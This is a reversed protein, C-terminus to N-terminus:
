RSKCRHRWLQQSGLSPRLLHQPSSSGPDLFWCGVFRCHGLPHEPAFARSEIPFSPELVSLHSQSRARLFHGKASCGQVQCNRPHGPSRTKGLWKSPLVRAGRSWETWLTKLSRLRRALAPCTRPRPERSEAKQARNLPAPAGSPAKGPTQHPPCHRFAARLTKHEPASAESVTLRLGCMDVSAGHLKTLPAWGARRVCHM